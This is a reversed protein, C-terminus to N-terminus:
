LARASLQTGIQGSSDYYNLCGGAFYHVVMSRRSLSLNRRQSGGHMLNAHWILIQGKKPRYIVPEIAGKEAAAQWVPLVKAGFETWDGGTVKQCDVDAMRVQPLRHSGPYVVLEGSDPQIDELAIWVGCMYGDPFSTLHIADQHPDQQSGCAFVLCQCPRPDTGWLQTLFRTVPPQYLMDMASKYEFHLLEIRDSSGPQYGGYGRKIAQTLDANVLDLAPEAITEDLVVYGDRVFQHFRAAQSATIEGAALRRDIDDAAGDQDYWPKLADETVGFGTSDAPYAFFLPTKRAILVDRVQAALPGPNSFTVATKAFGVKRGGSDFGELIVDWTGDPVLHSVFGLWSSQLDPGATLELRVPPVDDLGAVRAALTVPFSKGRRSKFGFFLPILGSSYERRSDANVDLHLPSRFFFM